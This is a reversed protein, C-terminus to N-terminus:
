HLYRNGTQVSGAAGASRGCASICEDVYSTAGDTLVVCVRRGPKGALVREAWECARGTCTGGNPMANRFHKTPYVDGNYVALAM